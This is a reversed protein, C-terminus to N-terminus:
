EYYVDSSGAESRLKMIVGEGGPIKRLEQEVEWWKGRPEATFWGGTEEEVRRWAALEARQWILQQYSGWNQVVEAPTSAKLGQGRAKM